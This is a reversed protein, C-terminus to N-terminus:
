AALCAPRLRTVTAAAAGGDGPDAYRVPDADRHRGREHGLGPGHEREKTAGQLGPAEANETSVQSRTRFM